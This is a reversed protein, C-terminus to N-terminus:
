VDKEIFNNEDVLYKKRQEQVECQKEIDEKAKKLDKLLKM